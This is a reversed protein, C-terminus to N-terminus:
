ECGQLFPSRYHFRQFQVHVKGGIRGASKSERGTDGADSHEALDHVPCQGSGGSNVTFPVGNSAVGNVTVVVNGTTAGSPVSTAINTASWSTVAAVTGNFTVTGSSGFNAGTITLPSGVPGSASSLSSIFPLLGYADVATSTGVYVKGNAVTPVAFKVANGAADRTANQASSYLMKPVNTADYAYLVAPGPGPGPSGWQSSDIGWVIASGATTGNSSMSIGAGPFGISPTSGTMHTFDPLGNTVPISKLVDSAGWFYLTNNWYAPMNFIGGVAGIGSEAIIESDKACGSCYHSNGTTMQDRDVVYIRGEKNANVMIHPFSGPQDPLLLVGGSGLDSDSNDM